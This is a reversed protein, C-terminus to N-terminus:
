HELVVFDASHIGDTAAVLERPPSEIKRSRLDFWAGTTIVTAALVGDRRLIDVHARWRSGDASYGSIQYVVTILDGLRVERRYSIEDVLSIPGIGLETLHRLEWGQEVLHSYRVNASYDLYRTNHLHGNFDIESLGIEFSKQYGDGV